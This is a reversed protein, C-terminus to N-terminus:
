KKSKWAWFMNVFPLLVFVLDIVVNILDEVIGALVRATAKARSKFEKSAAEDYKGAARLEAVLKKVRDRESNWRRPVNKVVDWLGKFTDVLAKVEAKSFNQVVLMVVYAIVPPLGVKAVVWALIAEM